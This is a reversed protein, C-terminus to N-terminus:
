VWHRAAALRALSRADIAGERRLRPWLRLLLEASALADAAAQHRKLCPIGFHALWEDLARARVEPHTVEALPAIDLWCAAQACGLHEHEAREILRRDFDVHFCLRPADGAWHAFQRLVSAPAHGARMAGVGIGHVLVNAKDVAGAAGPDHHLVADFSDALDIQPRTGGMRMAIAAVALLRDRDADLGTSEVDLVIWRTASPAPARGFRQRWATRISDFSM